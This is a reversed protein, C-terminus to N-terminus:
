SAACPVGVPIVTGAHVGGGLWEDSFLWDELYTLWEATWAIVTEGLKRMPTWEGSGPLWLCLLTATGERAYTHPLERGGALMSLDPSLVLVEPPSWSSHMRLRCRYMRGGPPGISFDYTLSTRGQRYSPEGLRLGKLEVLRQALSPPRPLPPGM